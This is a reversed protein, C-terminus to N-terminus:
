VYEVFFKNLEQHEAFGDSNKKYYVETISKIFDIMPTPLLVPKGMQVYCAYENVSFPHDFCEPDRAQIIVKKRPFDKIKKRALPVPRNSLVAVEETSSKDIDPVEELGFEEMHTKIKNVCTDKTKIAHSNQVGIEKAILKLDTLSLNDLKDLTM